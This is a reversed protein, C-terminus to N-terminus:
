DQNRWASVRGNTFYVTRKSGLDPYDSLGLYYIWRENGRSWDGATDVRSPEGWTDRVDEMSMGYSIGNWSPIAYHHDLSRQEPSEAPGYSYPSDLDNGAGQHKGASACGSIVILIFCILLLAISYTSKKKIKMAQSM